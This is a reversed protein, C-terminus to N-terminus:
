APWLGREAYVDRLMGLHDTMIGDAGADLLGRVHEPRNVTWAHVVIGLRHAHRVFRRDVARWPVQAAM